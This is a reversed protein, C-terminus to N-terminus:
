KMLQLEINYGLDTAYIKRVYINYKSYYENMKNFIIKNKTEFFKTKFFKYGYSDDKNIINNEKECNIFYIFNSTENLIDSPNPIFLENLLCEFCEKYKDNYLQQTTEKFNKDYPDIIYFTWDDRIM